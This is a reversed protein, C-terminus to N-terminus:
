ELVIKNLVSKAWGMFKNEKLKQQVVAIANENTAIDKGAAELEEIKQKMDEKSSAINCVFSVNCTAVGDAIDATATLAEQCPLSEGKPGYLLLDNGEAIVWVADKILM